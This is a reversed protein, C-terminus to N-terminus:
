EQTEIKVSVIKVDELPKDAPNTEVGAIGDVIDLGEIVQGFVTHCSVRPMGCDKLKGNEYGDLFTNDKQNIFFQSGNTDKGANAMSISGRLNSLEKVPEDEFKGGWFSEGGRGTGTPDGGQVMFDKIVRHFIIGDYYGKEALGVFNEVTKPTKDAFLRIKITGQTTEMTAVKDGAQPLANQNFTMTDEPTLSTDTDIKEAEITADTAEGAEEVPVKEKGESANDAAQPANCGSVFILLSFCLLLKNM